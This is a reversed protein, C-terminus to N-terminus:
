AWYIIALVFFTLTIGAITFTTKPYKKFLWIYAGVMYNLQLRKDKAEANSKESNLM